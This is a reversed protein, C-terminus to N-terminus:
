AISGSYARGLQTTLLKDMSLERLERLVAARRSLTAIQEFMPRVIQTFREILAAPPTPLQYTEFCASSARQRGSAGSMSRLAHARLSPTRALLYVMEPSLVRARLVIFETSGLGVAEASPLFQVFGTKGNELCPTIRAFLTDGNQFKTGGSGRRQETPAVLMSDSKLAAMPVYPKLAHKEFRTRPRVTLLEAASALKWGPPIPGIPSDVLPRARGDLGRFQVFCRAYLERALQELVSMRRADLELLRDYAALAGAIRQQEALPPCPVPLTELESGRIGAAAVRNVISRVRARGHPSRFFYYYFSPDARQPDLRVRILHSEFVTAEDLSEVLSCRGAGQAVLSQRAFLLDQPRLGFRERELESVPVRPMDLVGIRGHAFLEGMGIMKVGQGRVRKPRVLGNRSPVAFLSGFSRQPWSM